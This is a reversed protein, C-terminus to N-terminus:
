RLTIAAPWPQNEKTAIPSPPVLLASIRNNAAIRVWTFPEIHAERVTVAREASAAAAIRLAGDDLDSATATQVAASAAACYAHLLQKFHDDAVLFPEVTCGILTRLALLAARPVPAVCAVLLHEADIAHFPVVGLARVEEASLGGPAHRVSAPDIATVCRVGNQAALARLVTERDTHGLRQLEAGLRMGTAQQTQLAEELQRASIAAQRVLRVGLKLNTPTPSVRVGQARVERLRRGAEAAV